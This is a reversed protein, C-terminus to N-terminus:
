SPINYILIKWTPPPPITSGVVVGGWKIRVHTLSHSFLCSSQSFPNNKDAKYLITYRTTRVYPRKFTLQPEVSKQVTDTGLRFTSTYSFIKYVNKTSFRCGIQQLLPSLYYRYSYCNDCNM